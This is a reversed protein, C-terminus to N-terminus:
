WVIKSQGIPKVDFNQLDQHSHTSTFSFQVEFIVFALAVASPLSVTAAIGTTAWSHIVPKSASITAMFRYEIAM